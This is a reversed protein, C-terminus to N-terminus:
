GVPLGALPLPTALELEQRLVPKTV